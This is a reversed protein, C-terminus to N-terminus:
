RTAPARQAVEAFPPLADRLLQTPDLRADYAVDKEPPAAGPCGCAAEVSDVFARLPPRREAGSAQTLYRILQSKTLASELRNEDDVVMVSSLGLRRFIHLVRAIDISARVTVPSPDVYGHLVYAHEAGDADWARRLTGPEVLLVPAAADATDGQEALRRRMDQLGAALRRRPAFGVVRADDRGRLVPFGVDALGGCQRLAALVDRLQQQAYLM